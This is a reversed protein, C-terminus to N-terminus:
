TLHQLLTVFSTVTVFSYCSYCLPKKYSFIEQLLHLVKQLLMLSYILVGMNCIKNCNERNRTLYSSTM